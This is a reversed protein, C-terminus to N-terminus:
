AKWIREFAESLTKVQEAIQSRDEQTCAIKKDAKCGDLMFLISELALARTRENRNFLM